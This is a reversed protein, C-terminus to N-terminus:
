QLAELYPKMVNAVRCIKSYGYIESITAKRASLCDKAAELAVDLGLRNRFKFCDAVTKAPNYIKVPVGELLHEEVGETFSRDSFRVVSIPPYSPRPLASGKELALWIKWPLQTGIDHFLLSSTLCIVGKPIRKALMALTHNETIDANSLVYLGRTAQIIVGKRFLRRAYEPHIGREILDKIRIMGLEKVLDIIAKEKSEV